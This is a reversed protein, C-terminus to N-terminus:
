QLHARTHVLLLTYTQARCLGTTLPAVRDAWRVPHGAKDAPAPAVTVLLGEAGAGQGPQVEVQPKEPASDQVRGQYTADGCGQGTTGAEPLSTVRAEATQLDVEQSGEQQRHQDGPRHLM